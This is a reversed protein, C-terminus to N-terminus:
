LHNIAMGQNLYLYESIVLRHCQTPLKELCLLCASKDGIADMLTRIHEPNEALYNRYENLLRDINGSNQYEIRIKKPTGLEAIHRYQIGNNNLTESLIKKSFGKKRSNPNERVDIVISIKAKELVRLFEDVTKGEYGITYIKGVDDVKKYINVYNQEFQEIVIIEINTSMIIHYM